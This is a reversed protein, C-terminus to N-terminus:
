VTLPTFLKLCYKDSVALIRGSEKKKKKKLIAFISFLTTVKVLTPYEVVSIM